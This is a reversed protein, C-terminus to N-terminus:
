SATSFFRSESILGALGPTTLSAAFGATFFVTLFYHRQANHLPDISNSGTDAIGSGGSQLMRDLTDYGLTENETRGTGTLSRGKLNGVREFDFRQTPPCLSDARGPKTVINCSRVRLSEDEGSNGRENLKTSARKSVLKM